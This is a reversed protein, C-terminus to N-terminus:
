CDIGASQFCTPNKHSEEAQVIVGPFAWVRPDKFVVIVMIWDVSLDTVTASAIVTGSDGSRM